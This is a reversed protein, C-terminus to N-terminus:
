LSLKSRAEISMKLLPHEEGFVDRMKDIVDDYAMLAEAIRGLKELVVTREYMSQLTLAHNGFARLKQEIVEAYAALAEDYRELEMLAHAKNQRAFIIITDDKDLVELALELVKMNATVAEEWRELRNLVYARLQMSMLTDPDRDGLVQQRHKVVEDYATLAEQFKNLESLTYARSHQSQMTLTHNDGLTKKEKEIVDEFIKLAENRTEKNKELICGMNHKAVLMVIPYDEDTCHSNEIVQKYMDLSENTRTLEYLTLAKDNMSDLTDVNHPGLVRKRDEILKDLMNLSENWRQLEYLIYALDHMSRLTAIDDEGFEEKERSIIQKYTNAAEALSGNKEFSHAQEQMMQLSENKMPKSESVQENTPPAEIKKKRLMSFSGLLRLNREMPKIIDDVLKKPMSENKTKDQQQKRNKKVFKNTAIAEKRRGLKKLVHALNQMSDLTDQHHEGLAKKRLEIVEKYATLADDYNKRLSQLHARNHMSQLTDPHQNGLVNKRKEIVEDYALLAMPLQNMKALTFARNHMLQLTKKDDNLNLSISINLLESYLNEAEEFRGVEELITAKWNMANLTKVDEKGKVSKLMNILQDYALIAENKRGQLYLKRARRTLDEIIGIKIKDECQANRRKRLFPNELSPATTDRKNRSSYSNQPEDLMSETDDDFIMSFPEPTSRFNSISAMQHGHPHTSGDSILPEYELNGIAINFERVSDTLRNGTTSEGLDELGVIAVVFLGFFVLLLKQM